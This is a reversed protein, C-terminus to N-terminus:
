WETLLLGSMWTYNYIVLSPQSNINTIRAQFCMLDPKYLQILEGLTQTRKVLELDERFWVNYSMAIIKHKNSPDDTNEDSYYLFFYLKLLLGALITISITVVTCIRSIQIM